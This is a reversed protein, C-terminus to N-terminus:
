TAAGEPEAPRPERAGAILLWFIIPVEGFYLPMAIRGVLARADPFAISAVSTALYGVGAVILLVGLVRPFMRSKWVLVGFPFLWLGWFAIAIASGAGHFRLLGLTLADRQAPTFAALDAAGRLLVLPGFRVLLNAIAVAVGIAVFLLMRLAQGPDVHRLLRYLSVVLLIFLVLTAFGLLLDLRYTLEATKIRLATAAPDGPVFFSPMLFEKVIALIMFVFYLVGAKRAATKTPNM